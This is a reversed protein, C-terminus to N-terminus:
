ADGDAGCYVCRCAVERGSDDDYGSSWRHGHTMACEYEKVSRLEPQQDSAYAYAIRAPLTPHQQRANRYAQAVFSFHNLEAFTRM